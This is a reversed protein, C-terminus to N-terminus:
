SPSKGSALTSGRFHKALDDLLERQKEEIEGAEVFAADLTSRLEVPNPWPKSLGALVISGPEYSTSNPSSSLQGPNLSLSMGSELLTALRSQLVSELYPLHHSQFYAPIIVLILEGDSGVDLAEWHVVGITNTRMLVMM